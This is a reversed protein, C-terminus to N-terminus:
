SLKHAELVKPHEVIPASAYRVERQTLFRSIMGNAFQQEVRAVAEATFDKKRYFKSQPPDPIQPITELDYQKLIIEGYTKTMDCILRNGIQHLMDNPFIRARIQHIVEGTDVGADIYMFTAGVYEPEGNVLPWFNTGSGRYYPSLGLHVNLFRRQFFSLLPEKIISCGYAILLDPNLLTIEDVYRPENITGKPIFTPNSDDQSYACFFGFFDEESQARADLHSLEPQTNEHERAEVITRLSKELGECYTKLVTIGDTAALAQRFATHRLEAGTLIIIKKM